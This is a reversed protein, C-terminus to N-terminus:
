DEKKSKHKELAPMGLLRRVPNINSFVVTFTIIFIFKLVIVSPIYYKQPLGDPFIKDLLAWWRFTDLEIIHAILFILSNRGFFALPVRLFKVKKEILMSILVIILCGSLSGFIDIFGRGIDSHVLWFSQFNKIFQLWVVLAFVTGFVAIEKPIIPLLDKSERLLYGIYLFLLATFGAQISLPFWFFKDRTWMGLYFLAFVVAVRVWKNAKLLLKLIIVAWFTALLFWIAGIGQVKFPETYSDGAGYLSAVGWRKVVDVTGVGDDFVLNMFVASLIVGICAIIYPIILTKVKKKIFTANDDRTNIFFGSIIFFIPLHYTFVVRNFSRVGMHGLVISIMAIGRAIDLYELRNKKEM